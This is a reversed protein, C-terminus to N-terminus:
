VLASIFPGAGFRYHWSLLGYRCIARLGGTHGRNWQLTRVRSWAAPHNGHEDKTFGFTTGSIWVIKQGQHHKTLDKQGIRRQGPPGMRHMCAQFARDARKNIHSRDRESVLWYRQKELEKSSGEICLKRFHCVDLSRIKNASNTWTLNYRAIWGGSRTGYGTTQTIKSEVRSNPLASKQWTLGFEAPTSRWSYAWSSLCGLTVLLGIGWILCSRKCTKGSVDRYAFKSTPSRRNSATPEHQLSPSRSGTHINSWM